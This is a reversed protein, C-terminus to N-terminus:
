LFWWALGFAVLPSAIMIGIGFWGLALLPVKFKWILFGAIGAAILCLAWKLRYYKPAIKNYKALVKNAQDAMLQNKKDAETLKTDAETAFTKAELLSKTLSDIKLNASDLALVIEKNDKGLERARAISSKASAADRNASDIKNKVDTIRSHVVATSAPTFHKPVQGCACLFVVPLLLICRM